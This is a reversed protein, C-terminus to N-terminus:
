VKFIDCYHRHKYTILNDTITDGGMKEVIASEFPKPSNRLLICVISISAARRRARLPTGHPLARAPVHGWGWLGLHPCQPPPPAGGNPHRSISKYM